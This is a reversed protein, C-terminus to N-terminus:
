RGVGISLAGTQPQPDKFSKLYADYASKGAKGDVGNVALAAPPTTDIIQAQRAAAVAQGFQSDLVPTNSACGAMAACSLLAAARLFSPNM